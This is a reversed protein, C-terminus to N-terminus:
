KCGINDDSVPCPIYKERLRRMSANAMMTGLERDFADAFAKPVSEKSFAIHAADGWSIAKNAVIRSELHLQQLEMVASIEDAFMADLHGVEMMKWGNLRSSIGTLHARFAPQQQLTDYEQSYSVGIQVGLRLPTDVIADLKTVPYRTAADQTMFLMNPSRNTARSFYAFQAREPTMRAGTLIDLRGRQLDTLARAWPLEVWRVQCNLRAMVTNVTEVSLGAVNGGTDRYTYPADEAWRVTKVCDQAAAVQATTALLALWAGGLLRAWLRKPDSPFRLTSAAVPARFRYCPGLGPSNQMRTPPHNANAGDCARHPATNCRCHLWTMGKPM